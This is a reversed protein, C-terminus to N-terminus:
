RPVDPHAAVSDLWGGCTREGPASGKHCAFPVVEIVCKLADMLTPACRNPLTGATFACDDCRVGCALGKAVLKAKGDEALRAM